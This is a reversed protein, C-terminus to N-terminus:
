EFEYGLRLYWVSTCQMWCGPAFAAFRLRWIRMCACIYVDCKHMNLFDSNSQRLMRICAERSCEADCLCFIAAHQAKFIGLLTQMLISTYLNFTYTIYTTHTRISLCMCVYVWIHKSAFAVTHSGADTQYTNRDVDVRIHIFIHMVYVWERVNMYTCVYISTCVKNNHPLASAIMDLGAGTIGTRFLNLETLSSCFVTHTHTHTHTWILIYAHIFSRAQDSRQFVGQAHIHQSYSYFIWSIPSRLLVMYHYIYTHIICSFLHQFSQTQIDIGKHIDHLTWHQKCICACMCVSDSSGHDSTIHCSWMFVDIYDCLCVHM